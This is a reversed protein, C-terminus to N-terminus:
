FLRALILAVLLLLLGLSSVGGLLGIFALVSSSITCRASRVFARLVRGVDVEVVENIVHVVWPPVVPGVGLVRLSFAVFLAGRGLGPPLLGHAFLGVLRLVSGPLLSLGLALRLLLRVFGCGLGLSVGLLLRPLLLPLRIICFSVLALLRLLRTLILSLRVVLPSLARCRGQTSPAEGVHPAGRPPPGLHADAEEIAVVIM